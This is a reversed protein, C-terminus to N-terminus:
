FPAPLLLAHQAFLGVPGHSDILPTLFLLAAYAILLPLLVLRPIWRLPWSAPATSRLGRGFAKAVAIRMPVVTAIFVLTVGWAADSPPLVAKLVYLPLTFVYLAVLAAFTAVPARSAVARADRWDFLSRWRGSVAFQVQLSPLWALVPLLLVGGLLALPPHGPGTRALVMLGVPVALWCLTALAARFGLGAIRRLPIDFRWPVSQRRWPRVFDGPRAGKAWAWVLHAGVAAAVVWRVVSLAGGSSILAADTALNSLLRVPFVWLWTLVLATGLRPLEDFGAFAERLRAGRAIRGQAELLYGLVLVNVLPVAALVSLLVVLTTVGWATRLAARVRSRSEVAALPLLTAAEASM